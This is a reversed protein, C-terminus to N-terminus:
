MFETDLGFDISDSVSDQLALRVGLCFLGTLVGFAYREWRAPLVAAGFGGTQESFIPSLARGYRPHAMGWTFVANLTGGIMAALQSRPAMLMIAIATAAGRLSRRIAIREELTVVECAPQFLGECGFPFVLATVGERILREILKFRHLASLNIRPIVPNNVQYVLYAVRGEIYGRCCSVVEGSATRFRSEFGDAKRAILAEYARVRRRRLPAPKNLAALRHLERVSEPSATNEFVFGMGLEEAIREARRVNRRTHRGLRALFAEADSTLPLIDHSTRAMGAHWNKGGALQYHPASDPHAGSHGTMTLRAINSGSAEMFCEAADVESILYGDPLSLAAERIKTKFGLIRHAFWFGSLGPQRRSVFKDLQGGNNLAAIAELRGAGILAISDVKIPDSVSFGALTSCVSPEM